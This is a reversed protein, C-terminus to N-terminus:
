RESLDIAVSLIQAARGAGLVGRVEYTNIIGQLRLNTLDHRSKNKIWDWSSRLRARQRANLSGGGATLFELDELEQDTFRDLLADLRIVPALAAVQSDDPEEITLSGIKLVKPM